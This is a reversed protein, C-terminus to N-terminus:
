RAGAKTIAATMEARLDALRERHAALAALLADTEDLDLRAGDTHETLLEITAAGSTDIDLRLTVPGDTPEGYHFDVPAGFATEDHDTVCWDYVPCAAADAATLAPALTDTGTTSM